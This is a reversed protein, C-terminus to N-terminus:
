RGSPLPLTTPQHHHALLVVVSWPGSTHNDTLWTRWQERTEAHIIPYDFKWTPPHVSAPPSSKSDTM